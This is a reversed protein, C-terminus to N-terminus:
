REIALEILIDILKSYEIGISEFLKPYMSIKTFGPLTNIENLIVEGNEKLFFDVRSLGKCNVARYALKAAKKIKEREEPKVKAPTITKSEPNNYKADFTYFSEAAKVEGVESTIINENGLVACEIERGKIEEEILIKNDFREAERISNKLEERSNARTVGFSSGERSPKIFMPYGIDNEAKKCLEQITYETDDLDCLYNHNIKQVTISKAVQIGALSVLKKTFEKDM